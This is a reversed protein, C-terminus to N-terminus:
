PLIVDGMSRWVSDSSKPTTGSLLQSSQEEQIWSTQTTAERKELGSKRGSGRILPNLLRRTSLKESCVSHGPTSVGPDM